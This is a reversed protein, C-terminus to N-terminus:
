GAMDKKIVNLVVPVTSVNIQRGNKDWMPIYIGHPSPGQRTRGGAELVPGVSLLSKVTM